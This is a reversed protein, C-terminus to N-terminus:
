LITRIVSAASNLTSIRDIKGSQTYEFQEYYYVEKPTQINELLSTFDSKQYSGSGEIHLVLKKGLLPDPLGSVFFPASIMTSLSSEVVEPHLKVGGSNIVFDSRGLWKFRDDATLKVIDNTRLQTIGLHPASIILQQENDTSITTIPVIKFDEEKPQNLSRLAIHSITETMGFTHFCRCNYDQLQAELSGSIPAGGIILIDISDLCTPKKAISTAVQMPVMAAFNIPRDIKDLPSSNVDSIYLDLELVLARVIMMKGGITDTSLCLLASDGKALGLYEGTAIASAIMHKKSHLITKPIGTSGSTKVAITTQESYWDAIFAKVKATVIANNTIYQITM